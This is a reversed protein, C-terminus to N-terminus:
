QGWLANPIKESIFKQHKEEEEASLKYGRSPIIISSAKTVSSTMQARYDLNGPSKEQFLSKQKGGLLELYVQSLLEADLLAGHQERQTNDIKYRRCLADLSAPSGPFKKRAMDLTDVIENRGVPAQGCLVLEANIFKIDFAANHIVLPAEGLFQLFAEFIDSFVPFQQLFDESLGHVNFAELPMSRQPNIYQHYTKGTPVHNYLEVCGIEVLRHGADPDLGTSETDLVIERM